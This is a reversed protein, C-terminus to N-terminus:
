VRLSFRDRKSVVLVRGDRSLTSLFIVRVELYYKIKFIEKFSLKLRVDGENWEQYRSKLVPLLIQLCSTMSNSFDFSLM